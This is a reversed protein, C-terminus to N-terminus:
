LPSSPVPGRQRVQAEFESWCITAIAWCCVQADSPLADFPLPGLSRESCRQLAQPTSGDRAFQRTAVCLATHSRVQQMTLEKPHAQMADSV